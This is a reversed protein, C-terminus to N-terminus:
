ESADDQMDTEPTAPPVAPESKPTEKSPEPKTEPAPASKETEQPKAPAAAASAAVAAGGSGGKRVQRVILIVILAILVIGLPVVLCYMGFFLAFIIAIVSGALYFWLKRTLTKSRAEETTDESNVLISTIIYIIALIIILNFICRTLDTGSQPLSFISSVLNGMTSTGLSGTSTSTTSVTGSGNGTQDVVLGGGGPTNTGGNPITPASAPTESPATTTGTPTISPAIPTPQSAQPAPTASPTSVSPTRLFQQYVSKYQDIERQQLDTLPINSGCIIENIKNRTLIYVFGTAHDPSYGWPTLIDSAYKKQFAEVANFTATDFVGTASVSYGEYSSLFIQLKKVEVPDNQWGAKLYENLYPTCSLDGSGGTGSSSSSSTGSSHHSSGGGNSSSGGNSSGGNSSSPPTTSGFWNMVVLTRDARNAGISIVGDSDFLSSDDTSSAKETTFEQFDSFSKVSANYQDNYLPENWQMDTSITATTGTISEQGYWYYGFDQEDWTVCQANDDQTDGIKTNPAFTQAKFSVTSTSESLDPANKDTGVYRVGMKFTGDPLNDSSTAFAGDNGNWIMTCITITGSGSATTEAAQAAHSSAM